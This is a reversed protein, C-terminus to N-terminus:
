GRTADRVCAVKAPEPALYDSVADTNAPFYASLPDLDYKSCTPESITKTYYSGLGYDDSIMNTFGGFYTEEISLGTAAQAASSAVTAALIISAIIRTKM